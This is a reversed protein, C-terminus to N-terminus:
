WLWFPWLWVKRVTVGAVSWVGRVICDGGGWAAAVVVM